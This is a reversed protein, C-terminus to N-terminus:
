REFMVEIQNLNDPDFDEIGRTRELFGEITRVANDYTDM